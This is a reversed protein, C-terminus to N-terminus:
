QQDLTRRRRRQALRPGGVVEGRGAEGAISSTGGDSTCEDLELPANGHAICIWVRSSPDQDCDRFDRKACVHELLESTAFYHDLAIQPGGRSRAAGQGVDAIPPEVKGRIRGELIVASLSPAQAPDVDLLHDFRGSITGEGDAGRDRAAVRSIAGAWSGRGRSRGELGGRDGSRNLQDAGMGRPRGQPPQGQQGKLRPTPVALTVEFFQRQPRTISPPVVRELCEVCQPEDVALQHHPGRPTGTRPGPPPAEGIRPTEGAGTSPLPRAPEDPRGRRSTSAHAARDAERRRPNTLPEPRGSAGPGGEPRGRIEPSM